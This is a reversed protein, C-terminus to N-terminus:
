LPPAPAISGRALTSPAPSGSSPHARKPSPSSCTLCQGVTQGQQLEGLSSRTPPRPTPPSPTPPRPSHHQDQPPAAWPQAAPLLLLLLLLTSASRHFPFPTQPDGRDGAPRVTCDWGVSDGHKTGQGTQWRGQEWPTIWLSQWQQAPVSPWLVLRAWAMPVPSPVTGYGWHTSICTGGPVRQARRFPRATARPCNTRAPQVPAGRQCLVRTDLLQQSVEWALYPVALPAPPTVGTGMWMGM